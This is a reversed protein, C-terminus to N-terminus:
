EYNGYVQVRAIYGNGGRVISPIYLSASYYLPVRNPNLHITNPNITVTSFENGVLDEISIVIRSVIEDLAIDANTRYDFQLTVLTTEGGPLNHVRGTLTASGGQIQREFFASAGRNGKVHLRVDLQLPEDQAVLTLPVFALFSVTALHTLIKAIVIRPRAFEVSVGAPCRFV